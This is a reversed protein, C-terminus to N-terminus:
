KGGRVIVITRRKRCASKNRKRKPSRIHAYIYSQLFLFLTHNQFCIHPISRRRMERKQLCIKKETRGRKGLEGSISFGSNSPFVRPLSEASKSHTRKLFFFFFFFFTFFFRSSLKNFANARARNGRLLSHLNM